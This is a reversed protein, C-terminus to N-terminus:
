RFRRITNRLVNKATRMGGSMRNRDMEEDDDDYGDDDEEVEEDEDEDDDEEYESDLEDEDDDSGSVGLDKNLSKVGAKKSKEKLFKPWQEIPQVKHLNRFFRPEVKMSRFNKNKVLEDLDIGELERQMTPSVSSKSWRKILHETLTKSLVKIPIFSPVFGISEIDLPKLWNVLRYKMGEQSAFIEKLANSFPEIDANNAIEEKYRDVIHRVQLKNLELFIGRPLNNLDKGAIDKFNLNHYKNKGMLLRKFESLKKFGRALDIAIKTRGQQIQIVGLVLPMLTAYILLLANM